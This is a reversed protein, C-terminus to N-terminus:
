RVGGAIRRLGLIKVQYRGLFPPDGDKDTLISHLNYSLTGGGPSTGPTWKWDQIWAGIETVHEDDCPYFLDWGALVPIAFQYPVAEVSKEEQHIGPAGIAACGIGEDEQPLLTFPPSILGVDQGGLGSVLDLLLQDHRTDNDKLLGTSEWSVFGNGAQSQTAGVEGFGYIKGGEVYVDGSDDKFTAQLLHRDDQDTYMLAFGRPLLAVEDLGSWAANQLFGPIPLLPTGTTWTRDRFAQNEDGDAVTAQLQQSNWALVTYTYCWDYGDDFNKDSLVGGAEWRLVGAELKIAGIASGFGRVHHDEDLYRLRFGNAFVTGRDLGKPLPLEEQIRLPVETGSVNSESCSSGHYVALLGPTAYVLNRESTTVPSIPADDHFPLLEGPNVVGAPHFGCGTSFALVLAPLALARGVRALRVAPHLM